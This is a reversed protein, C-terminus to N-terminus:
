RASGRRGGGGWVAGSGSVGERKARSRGRPPPSVASAEAQLPQLCDVLTYAGARPCGRAAQVTDVEVLTNADCVLAGQKRWADFDPACARVVLGEPVRAYEFSGFNRAM